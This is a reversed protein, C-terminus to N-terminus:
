LPEPAAIAPPPCRYAGRQEVMLCLPGPPVRYLPFSIRRLACGRELAWAALESCDWAREDRWNRDTLRGLAFAWIASMDYPKGVQTQLAWGVLDREEASVVLRFWDVLAGGAELYSVPRRQVGAPILRVAGTTSGPVPVSIINSRADIVFGSDSPSLVACHSYYGGGFWEIARSLPGRARVFALHLHRPSFPM